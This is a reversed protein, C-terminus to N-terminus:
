PAYDIFYHLYARKDANIRRVAERVTSPRAPKQTRGGGHRSLVGLLHDPLGEEGGAHHAARDLHHRRAREADAGRAPLTLREARPLAQDGRAASLAV